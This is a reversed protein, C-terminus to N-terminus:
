RKGAHAKLGVVQNRISNLYNLCDQQDKSGGLKARVDNEISEIYFNIEEESISGIDAREYKNIFFNLDRDEQIAPSFCCEKDITASANRYVRIDANTHKGTIAHAFGEATLVAQAIADGQANEIEIYFKGNTSKTIAVKGQEHNHKM